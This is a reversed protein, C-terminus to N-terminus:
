LFQHGSHEGRAHALSQLISGRWAARVREPADATEPDLIGHVVGQALLSLLDLVHQDSDCTIQQAINIPELYPWPMPTSPTVWGHEPNLAVVIVEHTAGSFQLKADELGGRHALHVASLMWQHWLPHRDPCTLLWTTGLGAHPNEVTSPPEEVPEGVGFQGRVVEFVPKM